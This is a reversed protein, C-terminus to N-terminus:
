GIGGNPPLFFGGTEQHLWFFVDPHPVAQVEAVVANNHQFYIIDELKHSDPIGILSLGEDYVPTSQCCLRVSCM